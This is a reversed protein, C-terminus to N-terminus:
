GIPLPCFSEPSLAPMQGAMEKRVTVADACSVAHTFSSSWAKSVKDYAIIVTKITDSSYDLSPLDIRDM